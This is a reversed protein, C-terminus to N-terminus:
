VGNMAVCAGATRRTFDANRRRGEDQNRFIDRHRLQRRAATKRQMPRDGEIGGVGEIDIARRAGSAATRLGPNADRKREPDDFILSLRQQGSRQRHGPCAGVHRRQGRIDDVNCQGGGRRRGAARTIAGRGGVALDTLLEIKGVALLATRRCGRM